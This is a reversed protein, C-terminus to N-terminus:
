YEEPDHVYDKTNVVQRVSSFKSKRQSFRKANDNEAKKITISDSSDIYM